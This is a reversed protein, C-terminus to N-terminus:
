LPITVVFTNIVQGTTSVLNINALNLDAGITNVTGQMRIETTTAGGTDAPLVFRFFSATGSTGVTGSWIEGSAKAIQSNVATPEFTLGTGGGNNSITVLLNNGGGIAQDAYTPPTGDYIKIFGLNFALRLAGSDLLYNRAGTSLSIAM